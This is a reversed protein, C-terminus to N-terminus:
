QAQADPAQARCCSLGRYHSARAGRRLTTGARRLHLFGECLFSSGVCGFISLYIFLHFEKCFFFFSVLRYRLIVNNNFFLFIPLFGPMGMTIKNQM